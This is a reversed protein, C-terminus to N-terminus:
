SSDEKLLCYIHRVVEDPNKLVDVNWFRIIRYGRSRIWTNRAADHVAQDGEGHHGGDVEIVLKKEHCIFDVIYPGLPHQRRFRFGELQKGRLSSWLRKEAGTMNHRLARARENAM